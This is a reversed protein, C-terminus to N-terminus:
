FLASQPGYEELFRKLRVKKRTSDSTMYRIKGFVPREPGWARDYRGLVWFIGSYSNPDRGDVGYKNNLEIMVDLADSPTPSWELIKKGWLMRLYNHIRGDRVLQRQAANWIDDHTEAAEFTELDYVHPRPDDLHEQLTEQAWDPLSEYRSYDSRLAAMNYGLERWTVLEDLFAEAGGSMGWWGERKGSARHATLDPTWKEAEVLDAFVEHVSIQGWHLYPSLGSSVENDPDNRGDGYRMLREGLFTRWRVRAAVSGGRFSVPPVSHDIQFREFGGGELLEAPVSPWRRSLNTPVMYGRKLGEHALPDPEPPQTLHPILNKQLYRRFDVARQFVRGTNRMPMLGNSDVAELRLSLKKGAAELMRPLFFSPFDDTVVVAAKQAWDRLMEKADGDAPELYSHYAIGHRECDSANDAMGDVVFRHLRDSAWQYGARLAELVVLPKQLEVAYQVARELAFNSHVRRFSTMWYLVFDGDPRVPGENLLRIRHQPVSM